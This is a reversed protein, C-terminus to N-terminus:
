IVELTDLSMIMIKNKNAASEIVFADRQIAVHFIRRHCLHLTICNFSIFTTNM